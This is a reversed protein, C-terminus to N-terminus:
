DVAAFFVNRCSDFNGFKNPRIVVTAEDEFLQVIKWPLFGDSVKNQLEEELKTNLKNCKENTDRLTDVLTSLERKDDECKSIVSKQSLIEEKLRDPLCTSLM